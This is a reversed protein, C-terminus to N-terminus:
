LDKDKFILDKDESRTRTRMRLDEDKNELRFDKVVVSIRDHKSVSTVRHSKFHIITFSTISKAKCACNCM